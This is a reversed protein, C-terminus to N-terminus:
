PCHNIHGVNKVGLGLIHLMNQVCLYLECFSGPPFVYAVHYSANCSYLHCIVIFCLELCTRTLHDFTYLRV